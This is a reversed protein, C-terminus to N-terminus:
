WGQEPDPPPQPAEKGNHYELGLFSGANVRVTPSGGFGVSVSGGSTCDITYLLWIPDPGEVIDIAVQGGDSAISVTTPGLNTVSVGLSSGDGPPTLHVAAITGSSFNLHAPGGGSIRVDLTIM